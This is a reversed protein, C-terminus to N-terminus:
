WDTPALSSLEVLILSTWSVSCFMDRATLCLPTYFEFGGDAIKIFNVQLKDTKLFRRGRRSGDPMRVLLTM